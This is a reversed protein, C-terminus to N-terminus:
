IESVLSFIEESITEIHRSADIIKINESDKLLSFVEFFKDRTKQMLALDKEFIELEARQSMRQRCYSPSVDMFFCVDPRRIASCGLNMHMVWSLDCELGQYAFSSYYYRDCIVDRGNELHKGILINHSIRDALFLAAMEFPTKKLSGSLAERITGGIATETPEATLFVKERGLKSALRLIQTSKGSGDLGEFVIFRGAM